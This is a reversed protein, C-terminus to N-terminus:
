PISNGCLGAAQGVSQEMTVGVITSVKWYLNYTYINRHKWATHYRATICSTPMRPDRSGQIRISVSEGEIGASVSLIFFIFFYNRINKLHIKM